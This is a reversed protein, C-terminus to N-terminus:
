AGGSLRRRLEEMERRLRDNEAEAALLKTETLELRSEALRLQAEALGRIAEVERRATEFHRIAVQTEAIRERRTPIKMGTAPDYLRLEFGERVFNLGVVESPLYHAGIWAIPVFADGERRFGQMPPDLWDANPDFLIYEGVQLVDRYLRLKKGQDERRTSRSTLEIVLDPGRGEKWLLYNERLPLKPRGRVLFVDPAVHRRRNGEEYFMLLNGSVYVDPDAAYRDGLTEILDIMNRRHVDSEAMPKGDSTPYDIEPRTKTRPATAM